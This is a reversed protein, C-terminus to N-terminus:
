PLFRSEDHHLFRWGVRNVPTKKPFTCAMSFIDVSFFRVYLCNRVLISCFRILRGFDPGQLSSDNEAIITLLRILKQKIRPRTVNVGYRAVFMNRATSYSGHFGVFQDETQGERKQCRACESQWGYDSFAARSVSVSTVNRNINVVYASCTQSSIASVTYACIALGSIASVVDTGVTQGSVTSVADTSITLGSIASVMDTGVTQGSVASVADTCIALGSIASVMDTGITQGSVASVTYACITLSSVASVV